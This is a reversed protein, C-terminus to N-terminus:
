RGGAPKACWPLAKSWCGTSRSAAEARYRLSLSEKRLDYDSLQTLPAERAAILPLYGAWKALRRRVPGGFLADFNRRPGTPVTSM